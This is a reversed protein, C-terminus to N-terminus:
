ETEWESYDNRLSYELDGIETSQLHNGNVDHETNCGVINEDEIVCPSLGFM